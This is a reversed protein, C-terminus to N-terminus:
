LTSIQEQTLVRAWTAFKRLYWIRAPTTVVSTSGIYLNTFTPSATFSLDGFAGAVGNLYTKTTQSNYTVALKFVAGVTTTGANFDHSQGGGDEFRVTISGNANIFISDALASNDDYLYTIAAAGDWVGEIFITASSYGQLNLPADIRLYEQLQNNITLGKVTIRPDGAAASVTNGAKNVYSQTSPRVLDTTGFGQKLHIDSLADVKCDPTPVAYLGEITKRKAVYEVENMLVNTVAGDKYVARGTPKDLGLYKTGFRLGVFTTDARVAQDGASPNILTEVANFTVIGTYAGGTIPVAGISAATTNHPNDTRNAHTTISNQVVAIKNDIVVKTYTDAQDATVDHPDNMDAIHSDIKTNAATYDATTIQIASPEWQTSNASPILSRNPNAVKAVYAIANTNDWAVAGKLYAVDSGWEPVGREAFALLAVDIRNQLFNLVEYTPIEATWGNSYKAEGPDVKAGTTAWIRALTPRIAM